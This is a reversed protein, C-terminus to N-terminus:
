GCPQPTCGSATDPLMPAKLWVAIPADLHHNFKRCARGVKPMATELGTLKRQAIAQYIYSFVPRSCFRWTPARGAVTDM